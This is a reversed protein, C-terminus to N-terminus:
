IRADGDVARAARQQRAGVDLAADVVEELTGGAPFAEDVVEGHSYRWRRRGARLHKRLAQTPSSQGPAVQGTPAAVRSCLLPPLPSVCFCLSCEGKFNLPAATDPHAAARLGPMPLSGAPSPVVQLGSNPEVGGPLTPGPTIGEPFLLRSPLAGKPETLSGRLTPQSELSLLGWSLLRRIDLQHWM